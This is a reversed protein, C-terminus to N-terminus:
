AGGRDSVLDAVMSLFSGPDFSHKVLYGNAGAEAGRARDAAGDLSTLLLVPVSAHRESVRMRRVLGLGDLVPMEVDSVVLDIRERALITLASEGDHALFTRYGARELVSAVMTRSTLADDAVLVTPASRTSGRELLATTGTAAVVLANPELVTVLRGDALSTAGAVFPLAPTGVALGKVVVEEQGLLEDVALGLRRDSVALIVTPCRNLPRSGPKGTLLDSLRVFTVAQHRWQVALRGNAAGVEKPEVAVVEEVATLPICFTHKGATVMLGRSATLTLPLNLNFQTGKGPETFFEIRGGLRAVNERVVDLGVGRGSINTVTRATTFGASFILNLAERQSLAAARDADILGKEVAASRIEDARIGRGDDKIEIQVQSDRAEASLHIKGMPPKGAAVRDSTKELGHDVANRLLHNLPDRILELLRKDVRVSEGSVELVAQKGISNALDRVMRRMPDVVPGIPVMRVDKVDEQLGQAVMGLYHAEQAIDGRIFELKRRHSDVERMLDSTGARSRAVGLELAEQADEIQKRQYDIRLKAAVLEDLRYLISDLLAVSIRVASEAQQPVPRAEKAEAKQEPAVTPAAPAPLTTPSPPRVQLSRLSQEVLAVEEESAGMTRDAHLLDAALFAAEVQQRHAPAGPDVGTFAVHLAKALRASIPKEPPAAAAVLSIVELLDGVGEAPSRGLRGVEELLRDVLPDFDPRRQRRKRKPNSPSARAEPPGDPTPTPASPPPAAIETAATRAKELATVAETVKERILAVGVGETLVDVARLAATMLASTPELSGKRVADLCSELEHAVEAFDDRGVTAASGKLTHALRFILKILEVRPPGAATGELELLARQLQALLDRAEEEFVQMLELDPDSL